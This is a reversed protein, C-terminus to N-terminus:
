ARLRARWRRRSSRPLKKKLAHRQSSEAETAVPRLRCIAENVEVLDEIARRFQHYTEVERLLKSLEPGPRLQVTQTKGDVKRTFAYFPGHGPHKPSACGCNRKGCSRYSESISGQRMDGTESLARLLAARKTELAELTEAM